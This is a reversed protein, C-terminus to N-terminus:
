GAAATPASVKGAGSAKAMLAVGLYIGLVGIVSGPSSPHLVTGDPAIALLADPNHNWLAASFEPTM